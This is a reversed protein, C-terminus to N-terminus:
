DDSIEEVWEPHGSWSWAMTPRSIGLMMGGLSPPHIFLSDPVRSAAKNPPTVTHGDGDQKVKEEIESLASSEAFAMYYCQGMKNFFRGMTKQADEPYIMEFRHLKGANFLTLSGEYGYNSSTIPVFHSQDLGFLQAMHAAKKDVQDVLLTVEYLFDIQGIQPLPEDESIVVQMGFGGTVAPSLFLQGNESLTDINQNGLHASLGQMDKTSIGAGFLHPGRASLADAAIGAGDPQLFELRSTGIRYTHRTCSLCQIKDETEKEAGLIRQWGSAAKEPDAVILQLRDIRELM